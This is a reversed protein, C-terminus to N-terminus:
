KLGRRPRKEKLDKVNQAAAINRKKREAEDRSRNQDRITEYRRITDNMTGHRLVFLLKAKELHDMSDDPIEGHFTLWKDLYEAPLDMLDEFFSLHRYREPIDDPYEKGNVEVIPPLPGGDRTVESFVLQLRLSRVRESIGSVKAAMEDYQRTIAIMKQKVIAWQEAESLSEINTPSSSSNSELSM